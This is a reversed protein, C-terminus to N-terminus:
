QSGDNHRLFKVYGARQEPRLQAMMRRIYSCSIETGRIRLDLLKKQLDALRAPDPADKSMESWFADLDALRPDRNETAVRAGPGVAPADLQQLHGAM